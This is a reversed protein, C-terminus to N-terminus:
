PFIQNITKFKNSMMRLFWAKDNDLTSYEIEASVMVLGSGYHQGLMIKYIEYLKAHNKNSFIEGDVFYWYGLLRVGRANVIQEVNIENESNILVSYASELTWSDELYMRNAFSVLEGRGKPYWVAYLDVAKSEFMFRSANKDFYDVFEPSWNASVQASMFPLAKLRKPSAGAALQSQILQYWFLFSLMAVSITVTAKIYVQNSSVFPTALSTEPKLESSKERILEGLGILCIIVLSFFVWGYILHDAGVAHEMNTLHGTLIIGFVRIANAIIPFLISICVFSFRRIRSQMNLYAYLSGIVISAIFFSIGSCAEAVLFRGEPIEIYLGSRYIPVNVWQLMMVSMDATITQLTPILEEGVPICFVIFFLPFLIRKAQENGLLFWISFPLFTFTAIHMFLQVGGSLGVGYLALSGLCFLLVWYNPNIASLSLQERKCYIFYVSAPIIFLCHNFIDSIIWIDIATVIGQWFTLVWLSVVVLLSVIGVTSHREKLDFASGDNM